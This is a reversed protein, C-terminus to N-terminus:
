EEEQLPGNVVLWVYFGNLLILWGILHVILGAPAPMFSIQGIIISSSITLIGVIIVKKSSIRPNSWREIIPLVGKSGFTRRFWALYLCILGALGISGQTFSSAGWPGPVPLDILTQAVGISGFIVLMLWNPKQEM